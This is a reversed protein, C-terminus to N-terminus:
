QKEAAPLEDRLHRAHSKIKKRIRKFASPDANRTMLETKTTFLDKLEQNSKWIPSQNERRVTPFVNAASDRLSLFNM